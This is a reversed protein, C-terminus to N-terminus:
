EGGSFCASATPTCDVSEAPPDGAIWATIIQWACGETNKFCAVHSEPNGALAATLLPSQDPTALDVFAKTLTYEDDLTIPDKPNATVKFNGVIAAHCGPIGCGIDLMAQQAAIFQPGNDPVVPLVLATVTAEGCGALLLAALAAAPSRATKM